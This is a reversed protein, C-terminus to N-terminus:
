LSISAKQWAALTAAYLAPDDPVAGRCGVIRSAFAQARDLTVELPWDYLLGCILVSAFADGAGVTDIVKIDTNEPTVALTGGARTYAAAGADGRTVVVLEATGLDLLQRTGQAEDTTDTLAALEDHNLKIWCANAVLERVEDRSWWPTRLNVDLFIPAALRDRLRGLAIRAAVRRLALSGHYLLGPTAPLAARDSAIFDWAVDPRISFTPEGDALAVDVTGTPHHADIGIGRDDLGAAEIRGLIQEGLTDAGVASLLLPTLGFAQLHLAVNLPAGGLVKSGDPFHDFLVEGFLVPCAPGAANM